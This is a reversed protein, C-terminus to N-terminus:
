FLGCVVTCVANDETEVVFADDSHCNDRVSNLFKEDIDVHIDLNTNKVTTIAHDTEGEKEIIIINRRCTVLKM